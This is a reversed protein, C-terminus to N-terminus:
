EVQVKQQTGGRRDRCMDLTITWRGSKLNLLEQKLEMVSYLKGKIGVMCDGVTDSSMFITEEVTKRYYNPDLEILANFVGHGSKSRYSLERTIM